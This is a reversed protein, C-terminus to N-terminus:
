SRRAVREFDAERHIHQESACVSARSNLSRSTRVTFVAVACAAEVDARLNQCLRWSPWAAWAPPAVVSFESSRESPRVYPQHAPALEERRKLRVHARDYRLVTAM